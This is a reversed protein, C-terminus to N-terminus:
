EFISELPLGQVDYALGTSVFLWARRVFDSVDLDCTLASWIIRVLNKELLMPLQSTRGFFSPLFFHTVKVCMQELQTEIKTPM